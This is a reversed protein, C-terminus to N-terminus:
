TTRSPLLNAQELATRLLKLDEWAPRKLDENRLLASPHYTALFPITRSGTEFDIFRGRLRGIPDTTNLLTQGAVRGVCLIFHPNLLDIQRGIFSACAATEMPQPDRNEPPRCKIVNAIFCNSERFLGIAALMKDLLQGARGVFPRGSADEDSGPGEGIVMVLPKAAGEGPVANKRNGALKCATCARVEAAIQALSDSQSPVPSQPSPVPPAPFSSHSILSSPTPPVAVDCQPTPAIPVPAPDDSFHYEPSSTRYGSGTVAAALDLFHALGTKEEATM